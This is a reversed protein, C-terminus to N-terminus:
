RGRMVAALWDAGHATIRPRRKGCPLVEFTVLNRVSLSELDARDLEGENPSRQLVMLATLEHM